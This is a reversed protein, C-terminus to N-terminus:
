LQNQLYKSLKLRNNTSLDTYKSPMVDSRWGGLRQLDDKNMGNDAATSAGGRKGSHEGYDKSPYGLSDLLNRLDTLAANYPVPKAPAPKFFPDCSPVLFGTHQCGLYQFYSKTFEVPCYRTPPDFAAVIRQGGESYLDNKGGQFTIVLHVSPNSEFIVDSRQLKIIDSFRGLTYFEM